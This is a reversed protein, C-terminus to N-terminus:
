KEKDTNKQKKKKKMAEAEKALRVYLLESADLLAPEYSKNPMHFFRTFRMSESEDLVDKADSPGCFPCHTEFPKGYFYDRLAKTKFNYGHVAYPWNRCLKLTAADLEDFYAERVITRAMKNLSADSSTQKKEEIEKARAALKVLLWGVLALALALGRVGLRPAFAGGREHGAAQVGRGGQVHYVHATAIADFAAYRTYYTVPYDSHALLLALFESM